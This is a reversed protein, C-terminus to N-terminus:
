WAAFGLNTRCCEHRMMDHRRSFTQDCLSCKVRKRGRKIAGRKTTNAPENDDSSTSVSPSLYAGRPTSASCSPTGNSNNRQSQRANGQSRKVERSRCNGSCPTSDHCSNTTNPSSPSSESWGSEIDGTDSNSIDPSFPDSSISPNSSDSWNNCPTESSTEPGFLMDLSMPLSTLLSTGNDLVLNDIPSAISSSDQHSDVDGLMAESQWPKPSFVFDLPASDSTPAAGSSKSFLNSNSDLSLLNDSESDGKPDNVVTQVPDPRQSTAPIDLSNKNSHTIHNFRTLHPSTSSLLNFNVMNFHTNDDREVSCLDHVLFLTVSPQGHVFSEKVRISLSRSSVANLPVPQNLPRWHINPPQGTSVFELCVKCRSLDELTFIHSM